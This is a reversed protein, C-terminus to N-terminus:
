RARSTPSSSAGTSRPAAPACAIRSSTSRTRRGGRRTLSLQLRAQHRRHGRRPGAPRHHPPPRRHHAPGRRRVPPVAAAIEPDAAEGVILSKVEYALFLAVGILVVGISLSGIATGSRSDGTIAALHPRDARPRPRPGRRLERRVRRRPRLGQKREPLPLLATGKRRINLEVINKYTAWGRARAFLRPDRPRDDHRRGARPPEAQPDRTSRSCAAAPSCCSPSWSPGSTSSAATVWRTPPPRPQRSKKVGILLAAPQRLRRLLAADRRADLRLRDAAGGIGKAVAIVLNVVLSQIIHSTSTAPWRGRNYWPTVQPRRARFQLWPAIVRM